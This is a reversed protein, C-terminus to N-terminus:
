AAADLADSQGGDFQVYRQVHHLIAEIKRPVKEGMTDPTLFPTTLPQTPNQDM